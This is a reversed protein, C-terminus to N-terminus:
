QPPSSNFDESMAELSQLSQITSPATEEGEPLLTVMVRLKKTGVTTFNDCNEWLMDLTQATVSSAIRQSEPLHPMEGMSVEGVPSQLAIRHRGDVSKMEVQSTFLPGKPGVHLTSLTCTRDGTGGNYGALDAAFYHSDYGKCSIERTIVLPSPPLSAGYFMFSEGRWRLLLAWRWQENRSGRTCLVFRWRPNGDRSTEEAVCTIVEWHHRSPNRYM